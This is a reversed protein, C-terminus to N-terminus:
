YGIMERLVDVKKAYATLMYQAAVPDGPHERVARRTDMITRDIEALTREFRIATQADLQNRRHNVDRSLMAIAAIYKQEAERILQDPSPNRASIDSRTFVRAVTGRRAAPTLSGKKENRNQVLQRKNSDKEIEEQGTVATKSSESQEG